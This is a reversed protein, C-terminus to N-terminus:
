LCHCEEAFDREWWENEMAFKRLLSKNHLRLNRVGLGGEKKSGM